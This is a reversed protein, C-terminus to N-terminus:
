PIRWSISFPSRYYSSHLFFKPVASYVKKLISEKGTEELINPGCGKLREAAEQESLGNEDVELRQLFEQLSISHEDGQLSCLKRKNGNPKEKVLSRKM